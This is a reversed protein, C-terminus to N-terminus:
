FPLLLFTSLEPAFNGTPVSILAESVLATGNVEFSFIAAFWFFLFLLYFPTRPEGSCKKNNKKKLLYNAEGSLTDMLIAPLRGSRIVYEGM